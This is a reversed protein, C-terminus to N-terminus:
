EISSTYIYIDRHLGRWIHQLQEWTWSFQSRTLVHMNAHFYFKYHNTNITALKRVLILKNLVESMAM